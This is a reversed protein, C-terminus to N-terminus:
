GAKQEQHSPPYEHQARPHLQSMAPGFLEAYRRSRMSVSQASTVMKRFLKQRGGIFRHNEPFDLKIKGLSNRERYVSVSNSSCKEERIKMTKTNKVRILEPKKM